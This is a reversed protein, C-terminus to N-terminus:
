FVKRHANYIDLATQPISLHRRFKIIIIQSTNSNTFRQFSEEDFANLKRDLELCCTACKIIPESVILKKNCRHCKIENSHPGILLLHEYTVDHYPYQDVLAAMCIECLLLETDRSIYNYNVACAALTAGKKLYKYLRSQKVEEPTEVIFLLNYVAHTTLNM